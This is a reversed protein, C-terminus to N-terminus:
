GRYGERERGEERERGRERQSRLHAVHLLFRDEEVAPSSIPHM